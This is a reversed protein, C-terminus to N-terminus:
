PASDEVILQWGMLNANGLWLRLDSTDRRRWVRLRNVGDTQWLRYEAICQRFPWWWHRPPELVYGATSGTLLLGWNDACM